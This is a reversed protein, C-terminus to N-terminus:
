EIIEKAPGVSLNNIAAQAANGIHHFDGKEDKEFGASRLQGTRSKNGMEREADTLYPNPISYWNERVVDPAPIPM